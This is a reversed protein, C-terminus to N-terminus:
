RTSRPSTGTIYRIVVSPSGKQWFMNVRFNGLGPMPKAFNLEQEKEFDRDASAHADRLLDEQDDRRGDGAPQGALTGNIKISIPSGASIFIDSAKKEAM